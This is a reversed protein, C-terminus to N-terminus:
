DPMERAAEPEPPLIVPEAAPTALPAALGQVDEQPREMLEGPQYSNQIRM